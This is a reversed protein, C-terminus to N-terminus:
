KKICNAGQKLAGAELRLASSCRKSDTLQRGFGFTTKKVGVYSHLEDMEIIPAPTALEVAKDAEEGYKRIWNMVSVASVKLYRGIGRFGMGELYLRLANQKMEIPKGRYEVSYLYGCDKCKYRQRAGVYGQKMHNISKCKPCDM